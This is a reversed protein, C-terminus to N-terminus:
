DKRYKPNVVTTTAQRFLPNNVEKGKARRCEEEFRKVERRNYIETVVCCLVVFLVAFAVPGLVLGLVLRLKQDTTGEQSSVTLTISGTEDKEVLYILLNGDEATMKCWKEDVAPASFARMTQNCSISCNGSLPGTGFAKCEACDRHQECATRCEACHSCYSGLWGAECQCRNCVCHGHGSCIAGDQVCESTDLSCECASGTYNSQCECIGCRCQGNGACLQGNHRECSTNDCKCLPGSAHANCQCKGCVCRGKGGCVPGTSNGDHCRAEPDDLEEEKCECLRGRQGEQCSCVGCTLNGQGSSCHSAYPQVDGCQCKCVTSLQVQLEEGVGLVRLQLDQTSSLCTTAKIRVTFQVLQNIQVGSCEGSQGHGFVESNGCHSDYAISIGPPLDSHKLNVNSSLSHYADIILQVVNSSDEKLEGVVSKPILKSLEEYVLIRPRTVAFIPQINSQSLVEALHGVSPYDQLSIFAPIADCLGKWEKKDM